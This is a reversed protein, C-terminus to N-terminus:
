HSFFTFMNYRRTDAGIFELIRWIESENRERFEHLEGKLFSFRYKSDVRDNDSLASGANSINDHGINFKRLNAM